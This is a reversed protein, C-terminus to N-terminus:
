WWTDNITASPLAKNLWHITDPDCREGAMCFGDLSSTDYTRALDADYDEKKIVRVGTPAMFLMSVQYQKVKRWVIGADPVIPKGEFFVSASGRILPGYIINTHGVIWGIDSTAFNVSNRHVNFVNDMAWNMAVCTGGVDRVIGKPSGTTGSTYLIYAPSNSPLSVCESVTTTQAMLTDYDHYHQNGSVDERLKGDLEHRQKILRPLTAAAKNVCHKTLAEEVIPPYKLHKNPEIGCSSTVILKPQCDDIRNALEKPAFGGFVVGHVAGIRSCALMTFASEIIM